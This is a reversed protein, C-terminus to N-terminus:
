DSIIIDDQLVEKSSQNKQWSKQCSLSPCERPL